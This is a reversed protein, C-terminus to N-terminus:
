REAIKFDKLTEDKFMLIDDKMSKSSIGLIPDSKGEKSTM